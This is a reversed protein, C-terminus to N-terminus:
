PADQAAAGAEAAGGPPPAREFDALREMLAGAALLVRQEDEDLLTEMARGLWTDREGRVHAVVSEGRDTLFVSVRRADDSDKRREVYGVAELERLAAAVNSSTMQLEDALRRPGPAGGLRVVAALVQSATRSVGYLPRLERRLRRQLIKMQTRFRRVEHDNM